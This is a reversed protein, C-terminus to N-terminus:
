PCGEPAWRVRPSCPAGPALWPPTWAPPLPAPTWWPHDPPLAAARAALRAEVTGPSVALSPVAAPDLAAVAVTEWPLPPRGRARLAVGVQERGAASLEPLLSAVRYPAFSPDAPVAVLAAALDDPFGPDNAANPLQDRRAPAAETDAAQRLLCSVADGRRRLHTLHACADPHAVGRRLWDEASPWAGLAEECSGADREILAAVGGPGVPALWRWGEGVRYAARDPALCSELRLAAFAARAEDPDDFTWTHDPHGRLRGDHTSARFAVVTSEHGATFGDDAFGGSARWRRLDAVFTWTRGAVAVEGLPRSQEEVLTRESTCAWLAWIM